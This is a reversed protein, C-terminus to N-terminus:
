SGAGSPLRLGQARDRMTRSLAVARGFLLHGVIEGFMGRRRLRKGIAVLRMEREAQPALLAVGIGIRASLHRKRGAGSAHHAVVGDCLIPGRDHFESLQGLSGLRNGPYADILDSGPNGPRVPFVQLGAHLAHHTMPVHGLEVGHGLGGAHHGHRAADAAMLRVIRIGRAGRAM